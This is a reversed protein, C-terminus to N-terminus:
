GSVDGNIVRWFDKGSKTYFRQLREMFGV